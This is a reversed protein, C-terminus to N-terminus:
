ISPPTVVVDTGTSTVFTIVEDTGVFVRKAGHVSGPVLELELVVVGVGEESGDLVWNECDDM